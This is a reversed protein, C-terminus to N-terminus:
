ELFITEQKWNPFHPRLGGYDGYFLKLSVAPYNNTATHCGNVVWAYNDGESSTDIDLYQDSDVTSYMSLPWMYQVEGLCDSNNFFRIEGIQSTQENLSTPLYPPVTYFVEGISASSNGFGSVFQYYQGREKILMADPHGHLLLSIFRQDHQCEGDRIGDIHFIDSHHNMFLYDPFADDNDIDDITFSCESGRHLQFYLWWTHEGPTGTYLEMRQTHQTDHEASSTPVVAGFSYRLKVIFVMLSWVLWGKSLEVM